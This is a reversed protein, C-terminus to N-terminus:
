AWNWRGNAYKLIHQMNEPSIKHFAIAESSCCSNGFSPNFSFRKYWQQSSIGSSSDYMYDVNFVMFREENVENRTNHPYIGLSQLCVGMALDEASAFSSFQKESCNEVGTQAAAYFSSLARRSLIVAAGAVFPGFEPHVFQKGIYYPEGPNFLRIYAHLNKTIIYTDLDAKMFFDFKAGYKTHMLSWAQHSKRSIKDYSEEWSVNMGPANRDAFVLLDCHSGWARKLSLKESM